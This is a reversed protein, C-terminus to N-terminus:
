WTAPSGPCRTASRASPVSSTTTSGASWHGPGRVHSSPSRCGSSTTSSQRACHDQGQARGEGLTASLFRTLLGLAAEVIAIVAILLALLTVTRVSEQEVIANVVRGALVPTAVALVSGVVSLALFGGIRRRHPRAFQGIRRLTARSFPRQEGAHSASRLSMWATMQMDM